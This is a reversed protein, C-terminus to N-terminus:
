GTLITHGSRTLAEIARGLDPSGVLLYDTDYTSITFLSIGAEALPAVLSALVGVQTFALPGEVQLCRFGRQAKASAPVQAEPCVISLEQATRTVSSFSGPKAWDPVEAGPDLRVVALEGPMSVLTLSKGEM